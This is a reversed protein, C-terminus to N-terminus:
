AASRGLGTGVGGRPPGAAGARASQRARPRRRRSPPPRRAREDALGAQAGGPQMTAPRLGGALAERREQAALPDFWPTDEHSQAAQAGAPGAPRPPPGPPRAPPVRPPRPPAHRFVVGRHHAARERPGERREREERPAAQSAQVAGVTRPQPRAPSGRM